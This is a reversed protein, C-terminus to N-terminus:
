ANGERARPAELVAAEVLAALGPSVEDVAARANRPNMWWFPDLARPGLLRRDLGGVEVTFALTGFTADLWDDMDGLIPYWETAARFRYGTDPLAEVFAKGLRAYESHRPNRDRTWAWPFLLTRGFSHFSLSVKPRLEAAVRCLVQTEPESAASRGRYYPSFRLASGSLPHWRRVREAGPVRPFNRNLDVGEANCRQWTRRGRLHREMNAAFADPNAVPIVAFRAARLALSQSAVLREVAGLLALSGIIEIGHVLAM